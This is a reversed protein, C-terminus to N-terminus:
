NKPEEKILTHAYMAASSCTNFFEPDEDLGRGMSEVSLDYRNLAKLLVNEKVSIIHHKEALNGNTIQKEIIKNKEPSFLPIAIHSRTKSVVGLTTISHHSMGYHRTRKDKFTIRPVSIPIGGLDNVADIINGQEIGTFGFKTGTGVIGSGMTVIAVDCKCIEKAAILGNYINIVEYDGGFAHGLTITSDIINKVRLEQVSNSLYIPLAAGDTMIFATKIDPDLYKLTASIPALMSHLTGVIVPMKNLTKFRSFLEHYPSEQEEAAFVKIQFPTYRMKMIHGGLKMQKDENNLNYIVFHYGGTGLNLDVATTNLIVEHNKHIQGTLFDYNIAKEIKGNVNVLIDTRGDLKDLIRVVSGRKISMM